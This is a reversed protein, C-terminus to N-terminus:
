EDEGNRLAARALDPAMDELPSNGVWNYEIHGDLAAEVAEPTLDSM